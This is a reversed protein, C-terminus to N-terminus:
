YGSKVTHNNYRCVYVCHSVKVCSMYGEQFLLNHDWNHHSSHWAGCHPCCDCASCNAVMEDQRCTLLTYCLRNSLYICGITLIKSCKTFHNTLVCDIVEYGPEEWAETICRLLILFHLDRSSGSFLAVYERCLLKYSSSPSCLVSKKVMVRVVM